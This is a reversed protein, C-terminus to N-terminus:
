FGRGLNLYLASEDDNNIGYSLNLPGLPTEVAVFVSMANIYGSNLDNAQNWVRGRELSLGAYVPLGLSFSRMPTLRRYYILRGISVNQGALANERYGSLKQAGGIQYSSTVVEQADLTRGYRGGIVWTNAGWNLPKNLEVLWQRYREDSGLETAHQMLSLRVEEGRSPFNVNDLSDFAYQLQYYGEKFSFDPLNPDGIRVDANGWGSGVGFRVEANTSIQRGLNFGYRIRQLRYEAIPARAETFKINRVDANLWPSVFYRSGIDLPQYFETYLEQHDGMQARTFWEAGLRNIGNMRFSAGINFVSDGRLDDSLNLGLRLYDTGTRKDTAKIVLAHGGKEPQLRYEVRDFYELGYLTGMDKQLQGIDLPEGLRQRIYYGIVEDGVKSTNQVRISSILPTQKIKKLNSPVRPQELMPQALGAFRWQLADTARYGADMMEQARSFDTVGFGALMPQVLIDDVQLTALQAESNRRTLLSVSQNLIDFVTRLSETSALPSGIDVVIVRDVGMQRAIDVPINSSIGGDVLLRGDVEVPTLLAPISMSARVALALHGQSFVVTEGSAIDAAVARFPIPLQDFDELAGVRAFLKELLLALNQGQLVGLPLGLSGDDRFSLKQKVLFDRDDQKRRFPIDERPPADSLARQWNLEIALTELEAIRYGAAYLGGVVAGMSTGAIADITVGQEELAKLVGIHALGRAAGGSLVLGIREREPEPEPEPEAVPQALAATALCLLLMCAFYNLLRRM